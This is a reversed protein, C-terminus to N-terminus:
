SINILNALSETFSFLTLPFNIESMPFSLISRPNVSSYRIKIRIKIESRALHNESM